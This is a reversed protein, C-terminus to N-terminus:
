NRNWKIANKFLLEVDKSIQSSQSFTEKKREKKREKLELNKWFIM